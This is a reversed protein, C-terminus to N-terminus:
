KKKNKKKNKPKIEFKLETTPTTNASEDTAAVRAVYKGPKAKFDPTRKAFNVINYGIHTNWRGFGAFSRVTKKKKGGIVLDYEGGLESAVKDLAKEMAAANAPDGFDTLPENKFESPM